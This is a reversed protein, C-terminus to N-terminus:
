EAGHWSGGLKSYTHLWVFMSIVSSVALGWATSVASGTGAALPLLVLSAASIARARIITKGDAVAKVVAVIPVTASHVVFYAILAPLLSRLGASTEGLIARFASTPALVILSFWSLTSTVTLAVSRIVIGSPQTKLQRIQPILLSPMAGLLVVMPGGLLQGARLAGFAPGPLLLGAVVLASTSAGTSVVFDFGFSRILAKNNALWVQWDTRSVQRWGYSGGVLSAAAASAAWVALLPSPTACRTVILLGFALSQLLLWTLDLRLSGRASNRFGDYRQQDVKLLAPTSVASILLLTSLSSSHISVAAAGILFASGAFTSYLLLARRRANIDLSNREVRLSAEGFMARALGVVLTLALYVTSFTGFTSASNYRAVVISLLYNSTSSAIQDLLVITGRRSDRHSTVGIPQLSEKSHRM